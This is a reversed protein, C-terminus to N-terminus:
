FLHFKFHAPACAAIQTAAMRGRARRRDIVPEVILLQLIGYQIISAAIEDLQDKEITYRVKVEDDIM